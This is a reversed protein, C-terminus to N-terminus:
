RLRALLRSSQMAGIRNELAKKPISSAAVPHFRVQAPIELERRFGKKEDHAGKKM